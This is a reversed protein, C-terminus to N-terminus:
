AFSPRQHLNATKYQQLKHYCIYSGAIFGFFLIMPAWQMFPTGIRIFSYTAGCLDFTIGAYAWEKLRPYGPYVIAITGLIKATCLFPILYAPYGLTKFMEVSKADGLLGPISFVGFLLIIVATFVWYAIKTKKM